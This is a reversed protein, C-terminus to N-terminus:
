EYTFSNWYYSNGYTYGSVPVSGKRVEQPVEGLNTADEDTPDTMTDDILEEYDEVFEFYPREEEIYEYVALLLLKITNYEDSTYFEAELSEFVNGGQITSPNILGKKTLLHFLRNQAGYVYANMVDKAFTCVKKKETDLVVVIDPHDFIMIDDNLNKRMDLKVIEQPGVDKQLEGIKITIAM